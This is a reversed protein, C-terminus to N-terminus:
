RGIKAKLYQQVTKASPGVARVAAVIQHASVGFKAKWYALEDPDGTNVSTRVSYDHKKKEEAMPRGEPGAHGGHSVSNSSQQRSHHRNQSRPPRRLGDNRNGTVDNPRAARSGLQRAPARLHSAFAAITAM